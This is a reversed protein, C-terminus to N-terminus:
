LRDGELGPRQRRHVWRRRDPSRLCDQRRGGRGAGGAPIAARVPCRLGPVPDRQEVASPDVTACACQDLDQELAASLFQEGPIFLVVFDPSNKFQTWYAKASLERVADDKRERIDALIGEVISKVKNDAEQKESAAISNKLYTVAM